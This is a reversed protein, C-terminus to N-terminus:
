RCRRCRARGRDGARTARRPRRSCPCTPRGKLAARGVAGRAPRARDLPVRRGRGAARDGRRRDRRPAAGGRGFAIPRRAERRSWGRRRMGSGCARSRACASACAGDRRTLRAIGTATISMSGACRSAMSARMASSRRPRTFAWRSSFQAVGGRVGGSLEVQDLEVRLGPARLEGRPKRPLWIRRLGQDPRLLARRLRPRLRASWGGSWRTRCCTSRGARASPRWRRGCSTPRPPRSSAADLAIKM